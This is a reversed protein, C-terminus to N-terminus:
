DGSARRLSELEVAAYARRKEQFYNYEPKEADTWTNHQTYFGCFPILLDLWCAFTRKENDSVQVGYHAPEFYDMIKSECARHPVAAAAGHSQPAELVDDVPEPPIARPPLRSTRSRTPGSPISRDRAVFRTGSLFREAGLDLVFTATVPPAARPPCVTLDKGTRSDDLLCAYTGLDNDIMKDAAHKGPPNSYCEADTRVAVPRFEVAGLPGAVLILSLSAQVVAISIKRRNM